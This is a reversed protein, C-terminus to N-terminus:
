LVCDVSAIEVKSTIAADTEGGVVMVKNDPLVAVLCKHRPTPTQSNTETDYLYM